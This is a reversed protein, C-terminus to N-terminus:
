LIGERKLFDDIRAKQRFHHRLHMEALQLWENASLYHFGPHLSKGNVTGGDIQTVLANAENRIQTLGALLQGSSGPQAIAANSPHGEIVIDPFDNNRLMALVHPSASEHTHENDVICAKLQDLYFGTDQILHIYVQGISWECSSPKTCLQSITYNDLAAIWRDITYNFREILM